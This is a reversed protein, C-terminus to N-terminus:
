GRRISAERELIQRNKEAFSHTPQPRRQDLPTKGAIVRHTVPLLQDATYGQALLRAGIPHKLLAADERLLENETTFIHQLDKIAATYEAAPRMNFNRNDLMYDLIHDIKHGREGDINNEKAYRLIGERDFAIHVWPHGAFCGMHHGYPSYWLPSAMSFLVGGPKLLRAMEAYGAAIDPVHEMTAFSYVLDFYDDPLSSHEISERHYTVRSHQFDKGVDDIVDLGHVEQAGLDIFERCDGGTNAGVVLVKAKSLSVRSAADEANYRNFSKPPGARASSVFRDIFRKLRV